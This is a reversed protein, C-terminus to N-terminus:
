LLNTYDKIQLKILDRREDSNDIKCLQRHREALVEFISHDGEDIDPLPIQCLDQRHKLMVELKETPIEVEEYELEAAMTDLHAQMEQYKPQALHNRYKDTDWTKRVAETEVVLEQIEKELVLNREITAIRCSITPVSNDNHKQEYYKVIDAFNTDFCAMEWIAQAIYYGKFAPDKQSAKFEIVRYEGNEDRVLGDPSAGWETRKAPHVDYGVQFFKRNPYRHMYIATMEAEKVSGFRMTVLKWHSHTAKHFLKWDPEKPLFYGLSKYCSTGTIVGKKKTYLPMTQPILRTKVGEIKDPPVFNLREYQEKDWFHLGFDFIPRYIPVDAYQDRPNLQVNELGIYIADVKEPKNARFHCAHTEYVYLRYAENITPAPFVYISVDQRKTKTDKVSLILKNDDADLFPLVILKFYEEGSQAEVQIDYKKNQNSWLTFELNKREYTVSSRVYGKDSCHKKNMM